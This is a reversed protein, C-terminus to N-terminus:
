AGKPRLRQTARRLRAIHAANRVDRIMRAPDYPKIIVTLEQWNQLAAIVEPRDRHGTVLIGVTAPHRARMSVLYDLGWGGGLEHDSIVVDPPRTAMSRDAAVADSVTVVEFEECLVGELSLRAAPDDDIVLVRPRDDTM